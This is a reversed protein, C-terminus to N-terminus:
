NFVGSDVKYSTPGGPANNSVRVNLLPLIYMVHGFVEM